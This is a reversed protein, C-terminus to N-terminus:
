ARPRFPANLLRHAPLVEEGEARQQGQRRDDDAVLLARRLRLLLVPVDRGHAGDDLRLRRRPVAAVHGAVHLAVRLLRLRGEDGAVRDRAAPLGDVVAVPRAVVGALLHAREGERLKLELREALEVHHGDAAPLERAGGVGRAAAEGEDEAAGGGAPADDVVVGRRLSFLTFRSGDVTVLYFWHKSTVTSPQRNVSKLSRLSRMFSTLASADDSNFRSSSRTSPRLATKRFSSPSQSRTSVCITKTTPVIQTPVAAFSPSSCSKKQSRAM